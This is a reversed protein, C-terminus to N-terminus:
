PEIPIVEPAIPYDNDSDHLEPQYELNVEFIFRNKKKDTVWHKLISTLFLSAVM